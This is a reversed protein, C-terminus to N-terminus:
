RRGSHEAAAAVVRNRGGRKAKYLAEDARLLVEQPRESGGAAASQGISVTVQLRPSGTSARPRGGGSSHPTRRRDLGTARRDTGSSRRKRRGRRDPGRRVAFRAEAVGRRLEELKERAAEADIEPLLV